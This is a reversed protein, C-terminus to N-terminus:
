IERVPPRQVQIPSCHRWFAPQRFLERRLHAHRRIHQRINRQRLPDISDRRLRVGAAIRVGARVHPIPHFAHAAPLRRVRANFRPVAVGHRQAHRNRRDLRSSSHPKIIHLLLHHHLPPPESHRVDSLPQSTRAAQSARPACANRKKFPPSFAKSLNAVPPKKIKQPTSTTPKSRSRAKTAMKSCPAFNASSISRAQASLCGNLKKAARAPRPM